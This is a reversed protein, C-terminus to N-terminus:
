SYYCVMSLLCDFRQKSMRLYKFHSEPDSQRIEQLLNYYEGQERRKSFIPRVWMARRKRRKMRRRQCALLLLLEYDDDSESSSDSSMQFKEM